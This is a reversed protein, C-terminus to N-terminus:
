SVDEATEATGGDFGNGQPHDELDGATDVDGDYPDPADHCTGVGELVHKTSSSGDFHARRVEDVRLATHPDDPLQLIVTPCLSYGTDLVEYSGQVDFTFCLDIINM